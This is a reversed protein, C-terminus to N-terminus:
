LKIASNQIEQQIAESVTQLEAEMAKKQAEIQTQEDELQSQMDQAEQELDSMQQDYYENIEVKEREYEIRADDYKEKWDDYRSSDLSPRDERLEDYEQSAFKLEENKDRTFVSKEYSLERQAGRIQRSIHLLRLEETSICEKLTQKRLSLSVWGM